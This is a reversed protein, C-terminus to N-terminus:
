IHILSLVHLAKPNRKFIEKTVSQGISGAGGIVLFRSNEVLSSLEESFIDIDASFLKSKRGILELIRAEQSM